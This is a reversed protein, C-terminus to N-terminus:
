AMAQRSKLSYRAYNNKSHSNKGVFTTSSVLVCKRMDLLEGLITGYTLYHPFFTTIGSIDCIVIYCPAHATCAPYSPSRVCVSLIHLVEAKRRCCDNVRRTETNVNYYQVNGRNCYSAIERVKRDNPKNGV